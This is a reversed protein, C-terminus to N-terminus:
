TLDLVSGAALHILQRIDARCIPCIKLPKSCTTCCCVHGCDLFIVDAKVDMCVVCETFFRATVELAVSDLSGNAGLVQPATPTAQIEAAPETRTDTIDKGVDKRVGNVKKDYHEVAAMIQNRVGLEHVGMSKLDNETMQLLTEITIRHRSFLPIYDDAKAQVLIDVVALELSSEEDLLSQPKRDMLRQYQVLWYDKQDNLRQQEMEALRKNLEAQRKDREELLQVLLCALQIRKEAIINMEFDMKMRRREVEVLSLQALEQEILDIQETVRKHKADKSMQLAEFAAKQLKEQDQLYEVFKNQKHSTQSLARQLSYNEAATLKQNYVIAEQRKKSDYNLRAQEIDKSEQLIRQMADLVDQKRLNESEEQRVRFWEESEIREQEIRELFSETKRAKESMELLENTLNTVDREVEKMNQIFLKNEIDKQQRVSMLESDYLEQEKALAKVLHLKNNAFGTAIQAQLQQEEKLQQELEAMEKRKQERRTEYQQMHAMLQADNDALIKTKADITDQHASIPPGLVAVTFNSPEIYEIGREKCLFRMISETGAQCIDCYPYTMHDANVLLTDLTRAECLQVPLTTLPNDQVDLTRLSRMKCMADPLEKIKNSRLNFSQLAQLEKITDPLTTLKNKELNLVQLAKM